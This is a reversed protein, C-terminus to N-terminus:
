EILGPDSKDFQTRGVHRNGTNSFVGGARLALGQRSAEGTTTGNPVMILVGARSKDVGAGRKRHPTASLYFM